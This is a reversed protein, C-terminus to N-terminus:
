GTKRFNRILRCDKLRSGTSIHILSLKMISECFASAWACQDAIFQNKRLEDGSDFIQEPIELPNIHCEGQAELSLFQGGFERCIEQLQRKYM